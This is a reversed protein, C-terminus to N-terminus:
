EHRGGEHSTENEELPLSAAHEFKDKNSPWLAYAVGVAFMTCLIVLGWTEAFYITNSYDM